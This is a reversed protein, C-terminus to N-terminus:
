YPKIGLVSAVRVVVRESECFGIMNELVRERTKEWYVCGQQDINNGPDNNCFDDSKERRAQEQGALKLVWRHQRSARRERM